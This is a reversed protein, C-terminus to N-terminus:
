TEDLVKCMSASDTLDGSIKSRAVRPHIQYSRGFTGVMGALAESFVPGQRLLTTSAVGAAVNFVSVPRKPRFKGAALDKEPM